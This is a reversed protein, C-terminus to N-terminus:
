GSSQGWSVPGFAWQSSEGPGKAGFGLRDTPVLFLSSSSETSWDSGLENDELEGEGGM